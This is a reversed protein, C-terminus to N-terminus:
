QPSGSYPLVGHFFNNSLDLWQRIRRINAWSLPSNDQSCQYFSYKKWEIDNSDQPLFLYPIELPTANFKGTEGSGVSWFNVQWEHYDEQNFDISQLYQYLDEWFSNPLHVVVVKDDDPNFVDQCQDIITDFFDIGKDPLYLISTSNSYKIALDPDSQLDLLFVDRTFNNTYYEAVLSTATTHYCGRQSSGIVHVYIM